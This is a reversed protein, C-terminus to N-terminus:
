HKVSGEAGPLGKGKPRGANLPTVTASASKDSADPELAKIGSAIKVSNSKAAKADAEAKVAAPDPAKAMADLDGVHDGSWLNEEGFQLYIDLNRIFENRKGEEMKHLRCIVGFAGAHLNADEVAAKVKAGFAGSESQIKKRTAEGMKVLSVFQSLPVIKDTETESM